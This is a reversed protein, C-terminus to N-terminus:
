DQDLVLRQWRRRSYGYGLFREPSPTRPKSVITRLSRNSVVQQVSDRADRKQRVFLLGPDNCGNASLERVMRCAYDLAAEVDQLM